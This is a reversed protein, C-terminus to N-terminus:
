SQLEGNIRVDKMVVGPAHELRNPQAVNSFTCRELRIGTIPANEYGRVYLGYRSKQCTVDEMVINAVKPPFNGKPGEEYYLDVSLVSDAVQGITVKRMYVNEIFGGRVSNTKLRLARDLHPSDMRCNEAFVNRVGGSAESGITVGGHGDKMNCNVVIVNETPLNLRRGDRNRGSKIAICDDGTDFECGDILVDVCSEPDCGDNNPGHTNIKLNRVTVNKCVLPHVEWMPSNVITVGEILVNQCEFPQIFQTRLYSGEGFVRKELPVDEEAMKALALRAARQNPEGQKGRAWNWWATPGAQGDLTGTGTIAINKQGRAFIMPSYNMLELGEWRTHVLPLYAKPDTIFMLRSEEALFLNVNSKLHVPGTLFKGAPVVVRGGGAKSCAGIADAIAKSCDTAGDGKAGYKLINFDRKAFKPPVIRRRIGAALQWPGTSPAQTLGFAMAGLWERRSPSWHIM